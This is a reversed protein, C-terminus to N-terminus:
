RHGGGLLASPSCSLWVYDRFGHRQVLSVLWIATSVPSILRRYHRAVTYSMARYLCELIGIGKEIPVFELCSVVGVM